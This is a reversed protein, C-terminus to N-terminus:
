LLNKNLTKKYKNYEEVLETIVSEDEISAPIQYDKGNFIKTIVNKIKKTTRTKPLRKVIILNEIELCISLKSQVLNNIESKLKELEEDNKIDNQLILLALPKQFHIEDDIGIVCCDNINQHKFIESEIVGCNITYASFSISDDSRSTYFMYGENDIYGSDGSNFYGPYENIYHSNYLSKSENDGYLRKVCAPPLPLKIVIEGIENPGLEIVQGKENKSVIKIQYGPIPKGISDKCIPIQLSPYGISLIGTETQGYENCIIPRKIVVEELYKLTELQSKESAITVKKLSSLNFQSSIEGNKDDKIFGRIKSPTTMLQTVNYKEVLGWFGKVQNKFSGEVLISRAGVLLCGYTSWTVGSVWGLSALTLYTDGEKLGNFNRILYDLMVLHDGTERVIGKPKSTSGSTYLIYLPHHSEVVEYEKLPKVNEILKDWDIFIQDNLEEKFDNEFEPRNLVVVRSIKHKSIKLTEKITSLFNVVSEFVYGGITTIIIKPKCEEINDVLNGSMQGGFVVNHIAGIRACSLMTIVNEISNPLYVLIVDGKKVGLEKLGSSFKCVKEYLEQYTIKKTIGKLPIEHIFATEEGKGNAIHKDLVNYCTNILGGKFWEDNNNEKSEYTTEYPKDWIINQKAVEDWFSIPNQISYKYDNEYNFPKSLRYQQKIM